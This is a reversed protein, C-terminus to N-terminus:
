LKATSFTDSTKFSCWYIEPESKSPCVLAHGKIHM